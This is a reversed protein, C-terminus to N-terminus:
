PPSGIHLYVIGKIPGTTVPTNMSWAVRPSANRVDPISYRITVSHKYSYCKEKPTNQTSSNYGGYVCVLNLVEFVVMCVWKVM